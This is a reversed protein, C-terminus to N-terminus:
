QEAETESQQTGQFYSAGSLLKVLLAKLAYPMRDSEVVVRGVSLLRPLVLPLMWAVWNLVSGQRSDVLAFSMRAYYDPHRDRFLRSTYRGAEQQKRCIDELYLDDGHVVVSLPSFTVTPALAMLRIILDRDEFGYYRYREDFGGVRVLLERRMVCCATTLAYADGQAFRQERRACVARFYEGWFGEGQSTLAGYVLDAGAELMDIYNSLVDIHAPFCDADFFAVYDGTGALMGANCAAARGRSRVHTILTLRGAYRRALVDFNFSSSGDNVLFLHSDWGNPLAQTLWLDVAEVFDARPDKAPVIIDLRRM